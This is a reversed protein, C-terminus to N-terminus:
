RGYVVAMQKVPGTAAWLLLAMIVASSLCWACSAGIVFPELFTLYLSFLTGFLALLWLAMTSLRQWAVPGYQRVLWTTGILSYGVAGLVGIPILGFLTAYPSQQVTNCNGVPGCVAETQTIEVYSLYLAVATGVLVLVPVLWSPWLRLKKDPHRLSYGVAFVVLVLVLLVVVALTNGAKDQAFRQALTMNESAMAAAELDATIGGPADDPVPVLEPSEGEVVLPPVAVATPAVFPPKPNESVPPLNETQLLGEAELVQNLGPFEPWGIGDNALGEAIIGPFRQPIDLSGMLVTEGVILLPVGQQEPPIQYHLTAAVFLDRGQETVTDIALISLQEGYQEVLPPLDETMVEHCHPCTRSFFLVAYVVPTQAHVVRGVGFGASLILLGLCITHLCRKM